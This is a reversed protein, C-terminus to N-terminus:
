LLIRFSHMFDPSKTVAHHFEEFALKNDDDLDSETLILKILLEVDEASLQNQEGTICNVVEQIDAADIADDDNFDYIRFAYEAKLQRPAAESFVSMMDVFDDFTFSCDDSSSFVKLIRDRFPNVRIEDFRELDAKALRAHRKDHIIEHKTADDPALDLFREFCRLIQRRSFYTLDTYLEMEEQSFAGNRNGM